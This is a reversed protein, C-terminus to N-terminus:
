EPWPIQRREHYERTGKGASEGKFHGLQPENPTRWWDM